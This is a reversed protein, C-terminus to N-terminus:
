GWWATAPLSDRSACGRDGGGRRLPRCGNPPIGIGWSVANSLVSYSNFPTILLSPNIFRALRALISAHSLGARVANVSFHVPVAPLLTKRDSRAMAHGAVDAAAEHALRRGVSGLVKGPMQKGVTGRLHAGGRYGDPAHREASPGAPTTLVEPVNESLADRVLARASSLMVGAADARSLAAIDVLWVLSEIGAASRVAIALRRIKAVQLASGAGSRPSGRVLRDGLGQRLPLETAASTSLELSLRLM